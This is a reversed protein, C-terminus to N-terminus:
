FCLEFRGRAVAQARKEVGLKWFINRIHTKVTEAGIRLLHAIEKNSKGDAILGLIERERISLSKTNRICGATDPRLYRDKHTSCVGESLIRAINMGAQFDDSGTARGTRGRSRILALALRAVAASACSLCLDDMKRLRTLATVASIVSEEIATSRGDRGEDLSGAAVINLSSESAQNLM